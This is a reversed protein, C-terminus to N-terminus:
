TQAAPASDGRAATAPLTTSPTSSLSASREVSASTAASRHHGALRNALLPLGAGALISVFDLPGVPMLGLLRRLGPVLQAVGHLAVSTAVASTLRPNASPPPLLGGQGNGRCHLAHLIQSLVLTHFATSGARESSGHRLMGLWYAGLTGGALLTAERAYRLVEQDGVLHEHRNRPPRRLVDPEGPEQALAVAPLLDTLLNLWLLQFPTLPAARGLAVAGFVVLIESLNSSVLFHVAKRINDSISRGEAIADLVADLQDHKLAVDAVSLAAETGSGMAIGVDAGRLAPGDNIGDGTMAVVAGSARIAEVIRLKDAPTVRSFVQAQGAAQYQREPALGDMDPSSIVELESEEHPGNLHLSKGIQYATGEQDGTLMVTRIGAEHFRQITRAADPRLPDALGVLGLWTLGQEATDGTDGTGAMNTTDATGATNAHVPLEADAFGLVRLRRGTMDENQSLILAKHSADCAQLQGDVLVHTCLEVVQAPNGKVALLRRGPEPMDHLTRMFQRGEGRLEGHRLPYGDRLARLDLGADAALRALAGETASEQWSEDAQPGSADAENCLVCVRLLRELTDQEGSPAAKLEPAHSQRVTQVETATMRNMTLTGTKDLCITSVTGLTEIAQLRRVLVHQERMRQIGRALAVTAVTPLGEPVAAIALALASRLLQTRPLGRLLGLAAVGVCMATSVAVLRNGLQDLQVQLPTLPRATSRTLREISGVETRAGTAVVLGMGSGAVVTTGRYAMNRREALPVAHDLTGSRKDVPLSEGTLASEDVKLGKAELLRLDAAIRAGQRLVVLDGPVVQVASIQRSAGDRLVVANEDVLDSLSTITSEAARETSWGIRANMALVAVLAAAEALAGTILSVLASLGLLKVPVSKFQSLLIDMSARGKPLAVINRGHRLRREAEADSLGQGAESAHFALAEEAARLHWPPYAPTSAPKPTASPGAAARGAHDGAGNAPRTGEGLPLGAPAAPPAPALHIGLEELLSEPALTPQFRLLLRGTLPNALAELVAAHGACRSELRAKVPTCRYLAPLEIRLRGPLRAVIRADALDDMATKIGGQWVPLAFAV